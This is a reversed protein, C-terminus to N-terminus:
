IYKKLLRYLETNTQENIRRVEAAQGLPADPLEGCIDAGLLRSRQCCDELIKKLLPLSMHGQDWNTRAHEEFLVDKDISLYLPRKTDVQEWIDQLLKHLGGESEAANEAMELEEWSVCLLKEQDGIEIEEITEKSPGILVLKGLNKDEELVQKAWAGCSILEPILTPKMDNHNDFFLLNYPEEVRRVFLATMYHYNGSDIFHIGRLPYVAIRKQLEEEAEETCYMDTGEIDTCDLYHLDPFLEIWDKSYTHTLDMILDATDQM